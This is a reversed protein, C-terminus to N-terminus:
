PCKTYNGAKQYQKHDNPINKRINTGLFIQCGQKQRQLFFSIRTSQTRNLSGRETYFRVGVRVAVNVNTFHFQLNYLFTLYKLYQGDISILYWETTTSVDADVKARAANSSTDKLKCTSSMVIILPVIRVFINNFKKRLL